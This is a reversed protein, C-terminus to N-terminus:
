SMYGTNEKWAGVWVSLKLLVNSNGLGRIVSYKHIKDSLLSIWEYQKMPNHVPSKPKSLM